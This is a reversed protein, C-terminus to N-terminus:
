SGVEVGPPCVLSSSHASCSLCGVIRKSDKRGMGMKFVSPHVPTGLTFCMKGLHLSTALAPISGRVKQRHSWRAVM